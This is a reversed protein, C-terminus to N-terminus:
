YIHITNENIIYKIPVSTKIVKMITELSYNNRLTGGFELQSIQKNDFVFKIGFMRELRKSLEEFTLGDFTFEGYHWSSIHNVDAQKWTNEGTIRNHIFLEGPMIKKSLTEDEITIGGELLAISTEAEDSFSYVNFSTGTVRHTFLDTHVLFPKLTDTQVEFYAEGQLTVAREEEGFINDFTLSSCANVWVTSGDPLTVKSREGIGTEIKVTASVTKKEIQKSDSSSYILYSFLAGIVFIAAYRMLMYISFKYASKVPINKVSRTFKAWQVLLNSDKVDSEYKALDYVDKLSRFYVRNEEKEELWKLLEAQEQDSANESLYKLILLDTKSM